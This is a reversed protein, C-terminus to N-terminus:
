LVIKEKRKSCGTSGPVTRVQSTTSERLMRQVATAKITCVTACFYVDGTCVPRIKESSGTKVATVANKNAM